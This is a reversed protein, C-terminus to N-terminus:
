SYESDRKNLDPDPPFEAGLDSSQKIPGTHNTQTAVHNPIMKTPCLTAQRKLKQRIHTIDLPKEGVKDILEDSSAASSSHRSLGASDKKVKVDLLKPSKLNSHTSRFQSM